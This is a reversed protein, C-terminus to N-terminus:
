RPFHPRVNVVQGLAGARRSGGRDTAYSHDSTRKIIIHKPECRNRKQGLVFRGRIRDPCYHGRQTGGLYRGTEDVRVSQGRGLHWM